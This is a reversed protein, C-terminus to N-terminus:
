ADPSMSCADPLMCCVCRAIHLVCREVHLTCCASCSLTCHAACLVRLMVAHLTCRAACRAAPKLRRVLRPHRVSQCNRLAAHAPRGNLPIPRFHSWSCTPDTSLPVPRSRSHVALARPEATDDHGKAMLTMRGGDTMRALRAAETNSTMAGSGSSRM